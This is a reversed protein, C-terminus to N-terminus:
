SYIDKEFNINGQLWINGQFRAGVIPIGLLDNKNICIDIPVDNCELSLKYIEEKTFNNEKLSYKVITGTITYIDSEDGYPCFFSGVDSYIILNKKKNNIKDNIKLPKNNKTIPLIIKGENSLGALSIRFSTTENKKIDYFSMYEAVNQLYFVLVVGLRMDDCLCNYSNNDIIKNFNIEEQISVKDNLLFPCYNELHFFNKSDYYGRVTIGLGDCFEKSMEVFRERVSFIKESKVNPTTMVEGLLNDIQGKTKINSFGIARLYNHM